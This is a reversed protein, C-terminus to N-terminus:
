NFYKLVLKACCIQMSGTKFANGLVYNMYQSFRLQQELHLYRQLQSSHLTRKYLDPSGSLLQKICNHYIIMITQLLM